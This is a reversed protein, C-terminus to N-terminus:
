VRRRARDGAIVAPLSQGCRQFYFGRLAKQFVSHYVDEGITFEYSLDSASLSVRYAGPRKFSSFDGKYVNLGSAPDNLRSVSLTGAFQVSGTSSEIIRFSDAPATSFFIKQANPLYGAQNVMVSAPASVFFLVVALAIRFFSSSTM